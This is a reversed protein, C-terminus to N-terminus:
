NYVNHNCYITRLSRLILLMQIKILHTGYTPFYFISKFFIYLISKGTVHMQGFYSTGRSDEPILNSHIFGAASVGGRWYSGKSGRFPFNNGPVTGEGGNDSVMIFITNEAMGNSELACTLNAVTEDLMLNLACYQSEVTQLYDNAITEPVGCREVYAEPASWVGHILQMAYYLFMPQDAYNEAHEAIAAEAKMQMLYGNHLEPDTEKKNTVLQDNEHLDLFSGYSKTWYDVAGNLYGYFSDFGRRTPQHMQSSFGLHWKGVMYTRYGASQLEEALTTENLPLEAGEGSLWLGLKFSYKGTLLAGRAPICSKETYYNELKIGEGALRDITPTAWNMYTSHYGIDNWGWDDVLVFVINPANDYSYKQTPAAPVTVLSNEEDTDLWSCVGACDRWKSKLVDDPIEPHRIFNSWYDARDLLISFADKYAPTDIVSSEELPDLDLDYMFKNKAKTTYVDYV